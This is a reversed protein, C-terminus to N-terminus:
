EPYQLNEEALHELVEDYFKRAEWQAMDLNHDQYHGCARSTTAPVEGRFELVSRFAAKVLEAVDRSAYDGVLLLYLGTRCGMPGVYLVRDAWGSSASRLYVALLHELTHLADTHLVPERNPVKMRIDFTTVVTGGVPDRRSVYIGRRLADHNITFSVVDM